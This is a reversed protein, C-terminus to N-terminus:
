PVGCGLAQQGLTLGVPVRGLAQSGPSLCSPNTQSLSRSRGRHCCLSTSFGRQDLCPKPPLPLENISKLTGDAVLSLRKTPWFGRGGGLQPSLRFFPSLSSETHSPGRGEKGLLLDVFLARLPWLGPRLTPIASVDLDGHVWM